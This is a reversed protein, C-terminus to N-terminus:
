RTRVRPRRGALVPDWLLALVVGVLLGIFGGVVVSTKRSRASVKQPAARTLVRGKEFDQALTLLQRTQSREAVLDSQRQQTTSLLTTLTLRELTSLGSSKVGNDLEALQKAISALDRNQADLQQTLTQIKTNAYSSIRAVVIAALLNAAAADKKGDPGRVSIAAVPPPTQTKNNAALLRTSIGNRLRVVPLGVKSAVESVVSQSRAIASITQSSTGITSPIVNGGSPGLPTGLYVTAEATYVKGGARSVLLGLAAGIVIAIVVLWWRSFVRRGYRAFDVERDEDLTV